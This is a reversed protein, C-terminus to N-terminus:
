DLHLEAAKKFVAFGLLCGIALFAYSQVFARLLTGAVPIFSLVGGVITEALAIATYIAMAAWNTRGMRRIADLGAVPNLTAVFSRSVAAAVLAIPSYVLKWLLALVFAALAWAPVLPQAEARALAELEARMAAAEAGEQETAQGEGATEAAPAAAPPPDVRGPAPEPVVTASGLAFAAGCGGCRAKLSPMAAKDPPVRIRRQCSPCLVIM